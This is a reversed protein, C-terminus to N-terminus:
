PVSRGSAWPTLKSMVQLERKKNTTGNGAKVSGSKQKDNGKKQKTMGCCLPPIQKQRQRNKEVLSLAADDRGFRSVTKGRLLTTSIDGCKAKCNNTRAELSSPRGFAAM